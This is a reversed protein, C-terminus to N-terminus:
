VVMVCVIFMFLCIFILYDYIIIYLCFKNLYIISFM